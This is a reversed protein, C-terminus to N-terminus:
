DLNFEESGYLDIYTSLVGDCKDSYCCDSCLPIRIKLPNKELCNFFLGRHERELSCPLFENLWFKARNEHKIAVRAALNGLDSMRGTIEKTMSKRSLPAVWLINIEKVGLGILLEVAGDLDDVNKNNLPINVLLSLKPPKLRIVNKIAEIAQNYSGPVGSQEDYHSPIHSYFSMGIQTLGTNILNRAYSEYSLVRGNTSIGINEFGLKKAYAILEPLDRRMTPERGMFNISSYIERAKKLDEKVKDIPILGGISNLYEHDSESCFICNNNCHYGVYVYPSPLRNM